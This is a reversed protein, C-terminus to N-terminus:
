VLKENQEKTLTYKKKARNIADADGKKIMELLQNFINEPM